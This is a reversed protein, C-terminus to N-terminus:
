MLRKVGIEKRRRPLVHGNTVIQNDKPGHQENHHGSHCSDGDVWHKAHRNCVIAHDEDGRKSESKRAAYIQPMVPAQARIGGRCTNSAARTNLTTRRMMQLPHYWPM